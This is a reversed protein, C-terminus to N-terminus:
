ADRPVLCKCLGVPATNFVRDTEPPTTFCDDQASTEPSICMYTKIHTNAARFYTVQDGGIPRWTSVPRWQKGAHLMQSRVPHTPLPRCFTAFDTALRLAPCISRSIGADTAFRMIILPTSCPISVKGSHDLPTSELEVLALQTPEFGVPTMKMFHKRCTGPM